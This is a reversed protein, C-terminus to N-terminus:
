KKDNSLLALGNIELGLTMQQGNNDHASLEVSDLRVAMPGKEIDYIFKSLASLDGATEVRCNLTMYNTAENKWQPMISTIAVGSDRSWTDVAKLFRQEAQSTSAPLANARMDDWRSNLRAESKILQNGDKVEERLQRVQTQRESWWNQLPTFVFNVSVFLGAAVITLMVLFDQRNKLNM